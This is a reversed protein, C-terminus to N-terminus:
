KLYKKLIQANDEYFKFITKAMREADAGYVPDLIFEISKLRQLFDKDVFVKKFAPIYQDIIEKPLSPPGIVFLHLKSPDVLKPYGLQAISSVGPYDSKESFVTLVKFEGSDIMGKASDEAMMAVDIDGRMLANGNEVAGPFNILRVPLGAAEKVLISIVHHGRGYSSAGWKVEKTKGKQIMENWTKFGDKRALLVRLSVGMRTLFTYKNVDFDIKENLNDTVFATNFDGITYGDPKAFFTNSYAQRGGSQSLNKIVIEGGKAGKSGEKLYQSLYPTVMRAVIDYAGGAKVNCNWAIKESPFVDKAFAPPLKGFVVIGGGGIGILKVLERRSMEFDKM